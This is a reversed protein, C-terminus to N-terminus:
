ANGRLANYLRLKKKARYYIPYDVFRGEVQISALGGALAVEFQDVTKVVLEVEEPTLDSYARHM